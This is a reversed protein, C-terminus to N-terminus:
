VKKKDRNLRQATDRQYPEVMNDVEPAFPMKLTHNKVPTRLWCHHVGEEEDFDSLEAPTGCVDRGKQLTACPLRLHIPQADALLQGPPKGPQFDPAMQRTQLCLHSYLFVLM